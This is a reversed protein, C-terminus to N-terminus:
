KRVECPYLDSPGSSLVRAKPIVGELLYRLSDAIAFKTHVNAGADSCAYLGVEAIEKTSRRTRQPLQM